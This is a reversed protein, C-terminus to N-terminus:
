SYWIIGIEYEWGFGIDDVKYCWGGVTEKCGLTCEWITHYGWSCGWGFWTIISDKYM